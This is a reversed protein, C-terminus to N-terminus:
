SGCYFEGNEALRWVCADCHFGDRYVYGENASFPKDCNRCQLGIAKVAQPAEIVVALATQSEDRLKNIKCDNYKVPLPLVRATPPHLPM